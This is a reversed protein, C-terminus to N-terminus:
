AAEQKIAEAESKAKSIIEENSKEANMLSVEAIQEADRLINATIKEISM